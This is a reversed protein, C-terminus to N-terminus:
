PTEIIGCAADTLAIMAEDFGVEYEVGHHRSESWQCETHYTLGLVAAALERPLSASGASSRAVIGCAEAVRWVREATPGPFGRLAVCLADEGSGERLVLALAEEDSM